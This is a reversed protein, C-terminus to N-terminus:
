SHVYRQRISALDSLPKTEIERSKVQAVRQAIESDLNKKSIHTSQKNNEKIIKVDNKFNNLLWMIKDAVTDSVEITFTQM